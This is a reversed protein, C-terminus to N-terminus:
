LLSEFVRSADPHFSPPAMSSAVNSSLLCFLSFVCALNPQEAELHAELHPKGGGNVKDEGGPRQHTKILQLLWDFDSWGRQNLGSGIDQFSFYIWM